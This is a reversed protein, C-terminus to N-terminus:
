FLFNFVTVTDWLWHGECHVKSIEAYNFLITWLIPSQTHTTNRPSVPNKMILTPKSTIIITVHLYIINTILRCHYEDGDSAKLVWHRSSSSFTFPALFCTERINSFSTKGATSSATLTSTKCILFYLFSCLSRLSSVIKFCVSHKALHRSVPSTSLSSSRNSNIQSLCFNASIVVRYWCHWWSILSCYKSHVDRMTLTTMIKM